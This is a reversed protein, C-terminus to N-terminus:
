GMNNELFNVINLHKIGDRSFDFEDMSLVLKPFMDDVKKLNNFERDITEQSALLYCVQVYLKEGFKECIFDIESDGIRGITIDYGRKSLANYVINELVLGIDRQNNKFLAQRIGHDVLYYKDYITLLRKGVLDNLAVSNLLFAEECAHVFNLITEPAAKRNESKLFKSLRSASFPQGIQNIFYNILRELLAVNRINNRLVIDKIIVAKFIDNLYQMSAAEDYNLQSLFPMGGFHIYKLFADRKTTKPHSLTYAQYFENFDFPQIQFEIYRGAIYTALEGSLLHANSGTIYIDCDISVRWSNVIRQWNDLDQIEDIFIYLRADIERQKKVVDDHLSISNNLFHRNAMDELNYYIIQEEDIDKAYLLDQIQKLLISKGCRRLGTIVKILDKDIFPEIRNLYDQRIIM